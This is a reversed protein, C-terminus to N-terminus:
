RAYKEIKARPTVVALPAHGSSTSSSLLSVAVAYPLISAQCCSNYFFFVAFLLLLVLFFDNHLRRKRSISSAWTAASSTMYKKAARLSLPAVACGYALCSQGETQMHTHKHTYSHPWRHLRKLYDCFICCFFRGALSPSAACAFCMESHFVFLPLFPFLPLSLSRSPPLPIALYSREYGSKSRQACVPFVNYCSTSLSIHLVTSFNNCVSISDSGPASWCRRRSSSQQQQQEETAQQHKAVHKNRGNNNNSNNCLKKCKTFLSCHSNHWAVFVLACVCVCM